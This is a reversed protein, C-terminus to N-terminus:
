RPRQFEMVRGNSRLEDLTKGFCDVGTPRNSPAVVVGKANVTADLKGDGNAQIRYLYGVRWSQDSKAYCMVAIPFNPPATQAVAGSALTFPMGLIAVLVLSFKHMNFIRDSRIPSTPYRIGGIPLNICILFCDTMGSVSCGSWPAPGNGRCGGHCRLADYIGMIPYDAPRVIKRLDVHGYQLCGPCLLRLFPREARLAAQITPSFQPAQDAALEANWRAVINEADARL